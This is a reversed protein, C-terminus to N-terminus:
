VPHFVNAGISETSLLTVLYMYGRKMCRGWATTQKFTVAYGSDRESEVHICVNSHSLSHDLMVFSIQTDHSLVIM